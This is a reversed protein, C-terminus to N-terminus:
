GLLIRRLQGLTFDKPLQEASLIQKYVGTDIDLRFLGSGDALTRFNTQLLFLEDVMKFYRYGPVIGTETLTYREFVRKPLSPHAEGPLAMQELENLANKYGRDSGANACEVMSELTELEEGTLKRGIHNENLIEISNYSFAITIM